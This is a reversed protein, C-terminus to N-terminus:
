ESDERRDMLVRGPESGPLGPAGAGHPPGPPFLFMQVCGHHHCKWM